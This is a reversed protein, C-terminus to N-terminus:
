LARWVLDSWVIRGAVSLMETNQSGLKKSKLLQSVSKLRKVLLYITDTLLCGALWKDQAALCVHNFEPFTKQIVSSLQIPVNSGELVM